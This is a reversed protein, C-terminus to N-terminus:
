GLISSLYFSLFYRSNGEIFMWLLLMLWSKTIPPWTVDLLKVKVGELHLFGLGM